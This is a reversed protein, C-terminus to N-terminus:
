KKIKVSNNIYIIRIYLRDANKAMKIIVKTQVWPVYKRLITM